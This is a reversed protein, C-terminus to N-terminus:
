VDVEEVNEQQMLKEDTGDGNLVLTNTLEGALRQCTKKNFEIIKVQYDHELAKALRRGINGGGVIMVRKAPKDMRRMEKLVRRINDSAAIFFIEDGDQVLTGGEPIIAGDQRFIAAVRTQVQPMHTRLFSLPKGVLLGGKDAREAVRSVKGGAFEMM